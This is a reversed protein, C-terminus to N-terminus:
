NEDQKPFYLISDRQRLIVKLLNGDYDSAQVDILRANGTLTFLDNWGVTLKDTLRSNDIEIDPVPTPTKYYKGYSIQISDTMEGAKLAPSILLNLTDAVLNSFLGFNTRNEVHVDRANGDVAFRLWMGGFPVCCFSAFAGGSDTVEIREALPHLRPIPYANGTIIRALFILDAITLPRGDNNTDSKEPNEQYESNLVGPGILFYDGYLEADAVEYPIGNLNLDGRTWLEDDPCAMDFGGNAFDIVSSAKTGSVAPCDQCPGGNHYKRDKNCDEGTLNGSSWYDGDFITRCALVSDSDRLTLTNDGCTQWVFRVPLFACDYKEGIPMRFRLRLLEGADGGFEYKDAVKGRIRVVGLPDQEGGNLVTSSEAGFYEWEAGIFLSGPEASLFALVGSDSSFAFDFSRIPASEFLKRISVRDHHGMMVSVKDLKIVNPRSGIGIIVDRSWVRVSMQCEGTSGSDDDVSIAFTYLHGADTSDSRFHFLGYRDIAFTGAPSTGVVSVSWQPCTFPRRNEIDLDRGFYNGAYVDVTDTPCNAIVLNYSSDPQAQASTVFALMFATLLISTGYRM